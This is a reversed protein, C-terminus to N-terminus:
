IQQKLLRTCCRDIVPRLAKLTSLPTLFGTWSPTTSSLRGPAGTTINRQPLCVRRASCDDDRGAAGRRADCPRHRAKTEDAPTGPAANRRYRPHFGGPSGNGEVWAAVFKGAEQRRCQLLAIGAALAIAEDFSCSRGAERRWSTRAASTKIVVVAFDVLIEFGM